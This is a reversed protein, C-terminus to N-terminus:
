LIFKKAPCHLRDTLDQCHAGSPFHSSRLSVIYILVWLSVSHSDISHLAAHNQWFATVKAGWFPFCKADDLQGGDSGM